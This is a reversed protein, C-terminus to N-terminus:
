RGIFLADKRKGHVVGIIVIQQAEENIFFHVNYPFIRTHAIRVNKYRIAYASPM